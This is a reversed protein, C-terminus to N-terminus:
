KLPVANRSVPYRTKSQKVVRPRNPRAKKRELFLNCVGSRLEKLRMGTKSEPKAAAMVILNSAIFTFAMKFCVDSARQGHSAAAHSAERRVINYALLMGWMEQYILDVKKSRLTIANNLMSSKIDRFGLEIEWRQHYLQAIKDAPYNSIPLSTLVTKAKVQVDYTIARADWYEPLSPNKKRAQPSVKMRWLADGDGYEEIVEYVTNSRKPILWHRKNGGNMLTHMLNASWFNRDLLTISRDPIKDLMAEALPTEAKRYRGIQTDLIIHSHTNMLAVCRLLPYASQKVTTNSASGFHERLEPTDPTRFVVGDIAFVQLGQWDDQAFRENAWHEGTRQFLWQMPDSGLRQRAQSVGSKALLQESALGESCINLRRAVEEIAEDRFLAMGLVLWLVQDEPLRRRRISAKSSLTLASEIWEVPINQTFTSHDSFSHLEDISLLLQQISV